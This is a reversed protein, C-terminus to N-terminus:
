LRVKWPMFETYPGNYKDKSLTKVEANKAQLNLRGLAKGVMAAVVTGPQPLIRGLLAVATSQTGDWRIRAVSEALNLKSIRAGPPSWVVPQLDNPAAVLATPTGRNVIKINDDGAAEPDGNFGSLEGTAFDDQFSAYLDARHVSPVIDGQGLDFRINGLDGATFADFSASNLLGLSTYLARGPLQADAATLSQNTFTYCPPIRLEDLLALHAVVRVTGTAATTDASLDTLAGHRYRLEGNELCGTPILWDSPSGEFQPPGVHLVRRYYRASASAIDTDGDTLRIKGHNIREHARIHNFGGQFRMVSGDWFDVGTFVNNNGVVTPATTYTPTVVVSFTIKALHALRGFLQKPLDRLTQTGNTGASYTQSPLTYPYLQFAKAM